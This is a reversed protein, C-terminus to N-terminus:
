DDAAYYNGGVIVVRSRLDTSLISMFSEIQQSNLNDLIIRHYMKGRIARDINRHLRTVSCNTPATQEYENPNITVILISEDSHKLVYKSVALSHGPINGLNISPISLHSFAERSQELFDFVSQMNARLTDLKDLIKGDRQFESQLSMLAAKKQEFSSLRYAYEQYVNNYNKLPFQKQM